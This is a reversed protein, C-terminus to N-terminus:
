HNDEGAGGGPAGSAARGVPTRSLERCPYALPPGLKVPVFRGSLDEAIM